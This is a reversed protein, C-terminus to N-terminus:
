TVPIRPHTDRGKCAYYARLAWATCVCHARLAFVQGRSSLHWPMCQHQERGEWPGFHCVFSVMASRAAAERGGFCVWADSSDVCSALCRYPALHAGRHESVLACVNHQWSVVRAWTSYLLSGQTCTVSVAMAPGQLDLHNQVWPTANRMVDAPGEPHRVRATGDAPTNKLRWRRETTVPSPNIGSCNSSNVQAHRRQLGHEFARAPTSQKLHRLSNIQGM